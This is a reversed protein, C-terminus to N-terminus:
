FLNFSKKEDDFNKKENLEHLEHLKLLYLTQLEGKGIAAKVNLFM